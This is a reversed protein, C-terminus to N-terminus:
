TRKKPQTIHPDREYSFVKKTHAIAYTVEQPTELPHETIYLPISHVASLVNGAVLASRSASFSGIHSRIVIGDFKKIKKQVAEIAIAIDQGHEIAQSYFCDNADCARIMMGREPLPEIILVTM